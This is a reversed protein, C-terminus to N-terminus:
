AAKKTSPAPLELPDFHFMAGSNDGGLRRKLFSTYMVGFAANTWLDFVPLLAIGITSCALFWAPGSARALLSDGGPPVERRNSRWNSATDNMRVGLAAVEKHCSFFVLTRTLFNQQPVLHHLVHTAGFFWCCLNAPLSALDLVMQNQELVGDGGPTIDGFYHSCNSMCKLLAERVTNPIVLAFNLLRVTPWWHAPLWAPLQGDGSLFLFYAYLMGLKSIAFYVGYTAASTQNALRANFWAADRQVDRMVLVSLSLRRPPPSSFLPLFYATFGLLLLFLPLSLPGM